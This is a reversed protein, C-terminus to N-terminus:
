APVLETTTTRRKGRTLGRAYKLNSETNFKERYGRDIAANLTESTVRRAKVRVVREGVRIAGNPEARFAATWGDKKMTWSRIFLRDAVVVPWVPIFRHEVGSRIYVYKKERLAELVPKTFKKAAV